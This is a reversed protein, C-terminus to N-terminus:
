YRGIPLFKNTEVVSKALELYCRDKDFFPLAECIEPDSTEKAVEILCTNTSIKDSEMECMYKDGRSVAIKKYCDNRLDISLNECYDSNRTLVATCYTNEEGQIQGCADDNRRALANCLDTYAIKLGSTKACLEPKKYGVAYNFYCDNPYLTGFDCLNFDKKIEAMQDYCRKKRDLGLKDCYTEDQLATALCENKLFSLPIKECYSQDKSTQALCLAQNPTLKIQQCYTAATREEQTDATDFNINIKGGIVYKQTLFALIGAILALFIFKKM